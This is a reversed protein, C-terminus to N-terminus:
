PKLVRETQAGNLLEATAGTMAEAISGTESAFASAESRGGQAVGAFFKEYEPVIRAPAFRLANSFGSERLAPLSDLNAAVIAAAAPEDSPDIYLAGSGAVDTMPARNSTIVPCGCSQAEILPWGFGEYLSPFLLAAAGSYLTVVDENSPEVMEIVSVELGNARVFERMEASWAQGRGWGPVPRRRARTPCPKM